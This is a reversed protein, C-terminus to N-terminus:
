HNLAAHKQRFEILNLPGWERMNEDILVEVDGHQVPDELRGCEDRYGGFHHFPVVVPNGRGDSELEWTTGM